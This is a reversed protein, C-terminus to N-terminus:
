LGVPRRQPVSRMQRPFRSSEYIDVGGNTSACQIRGSVGLLSELLRIGADPGLVSVATAVSDATTLDPALVHVLSRNTLGCGTRPDVIHSYRVGGIEVFQFLDGSTALASRALLLTEVGRNPTSDVSGLEVQWGAAGPPPDGARMDGGCTVIATTVGRKQLVELAADLAYGKAIGGLDLRMNPVALSAMRRRSDLTLHRFGVAERARALLEPKPLEKERRARRWLNVYPGVTVDFAGGSREALEQARRLVEWLDPSIPVAQGLASTLSLRSLESDTEYDSLVANLERIRDFAALAADAAELHTRAYIVMRVPM